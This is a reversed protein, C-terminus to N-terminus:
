LVTMTASPVLIKTNISCKVNVPSMLECTYICEVSLSDDACTM